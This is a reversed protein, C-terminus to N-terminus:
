TQQCALPRTLRDSLIIQILIDKIKLKPLIELLYSILSRFHKSVVVTDGGKVVGVQADVEMCLCM